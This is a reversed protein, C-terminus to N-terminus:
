YFYDDAVHFATGKKLQGSGSGISVEAFWFPPAGKVFWPSVIFEPTPEPRGLVSRRSLRIEQM